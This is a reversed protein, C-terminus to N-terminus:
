LIENLWKNCGFSAEDEVQIEPLYPRNFADCIINANDYPQSMFHGDLKAAIQAYQDASLDAFSAAAMYQRCTSGRGSASLLQGSVEAVLADNALTTPFRDVVTQKLRAQATEHLVRDILSNVPALISNFSEQTEGNEAAFKALNDYTERLVEDACSLDVYSLASLSSIDFDDMKSAEADAEKRQKSTKRQVAKPSNMAYGEEETTVRLISKKDTQFDFEFSTNIFDLKM